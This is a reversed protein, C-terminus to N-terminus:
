RRDRCDSRSLESGAEVRRWRWCPEVLGCGVRSAAWDLRLKGLLNSIFIADYITLFM